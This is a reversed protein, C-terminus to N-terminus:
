LFNGFEGAEIKRIAEDKPMPKGFLYGQIRECGISKLFEFAEATEVGEALTHMRIDNALNVINKLIPRAKPNESFDKLFAMDIKMMDFNYEKLLNLGSYGSGFDDLWLSYGEAKLTGLIKKLKKNDGSLATETVEIHIVQKDIGQKEIFVKLLDEINLLEFDIKSFNISIPYVPVGTNKARLIDNCVEKLVYADLKHIQRYEELVPIFAYPPMFGFDPDIWRALAEFGCLERTESSIVPQYYIQIYNQAIAKDINNIVYQKRAFAQASESTYECFDVDYKKVIQECAYRAYDCATNTHCSIDEPTYAGAKLGLRVEPDANMIKKRISSLRYEIENIGDEESDRKAFIVFHDDSFRAVPADPFTYKITHAVTSLFRSGENFGHKENYSKFNLIDLFLFTRSLYDERNNKRIEGVEHRFSNLNGIGTTEDTLAIQGLYTNMDEVREAKRAERAKQHFRGLTTIVIIFWLAFFNIKAIYTLPSAYDCICYFILFSITVLPISVSPRWILIGMTIIEMSVLGFIIQEGQIYDLYSIYIGFSLCVFAFYLMFFKGAMRNSSRGTLFRYSFALLSIASFLLIIHPLLHQLIFKTNQVTSDTAIHFLINCDTCFELAVIIVSILIASRANDMDVYRKFSSGYGQLGFLNKLTLIVKKYYIKTQQTM